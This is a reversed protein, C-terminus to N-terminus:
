VLIVTKVMAIQKAIWAYGWATEAGRLGLQTTATADGPEQEGDVLSAALAGLEGVAGSGMIVTQSEM